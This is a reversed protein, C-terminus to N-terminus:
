PRRLRSGAVFGVFDPTPSCSRFPTLVGPGAGMVTGVGEDTGGLM